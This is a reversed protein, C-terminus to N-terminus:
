TVDKGVAVIGAGLEFRRQRLDAGPAQFDDLAGVGGFTEFELRPSPNGLAGNGLEVAVAMKGLIEFFGDFARRQM